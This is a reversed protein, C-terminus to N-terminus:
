GVGRRDYREPRRHRGSPFVTSTSGASTATISILGTPLKFSLGSATGTATGM